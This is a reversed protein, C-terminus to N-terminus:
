KEVIHPGGTILQNIFGMFVITIQTGYVMTIPTIHVLKAIKPAGCQISVQQHFCTLKGSKNTKIHRTVEWSPVFAVQRRIGCLRLNWWRRRRVVCPYFVYPTSLWVAVSFFFLFFMQWDLPLMMGLFFCPFYPLIFIIFYSPLHHLAFHKLCFFVWQFDMEPFREPLTVYPHTQFHPIGGIIAM